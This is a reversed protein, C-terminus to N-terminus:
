RNVFRIRGGVSVEEGPGVDGFLPAAHICGADDAAWNTFFYAVQGDVISELMWRGDVSDVVIRDGSLVARAVGWGHSKSGALHNVMDIGGATPYCQMSTDARLEKPVDRLTVWNGDAGRTRTRQLELDRFLPANALNLCNFASVKALVTDTSNRFSMSWRLSRGAVDANLVLHVKGIPDSGSAEAHDDGFEWNFTLDKRCHVMFHRRSDKLGGAVSFNEPYCMRFVQGPLFDASWKISMPSERFNDEFTFM